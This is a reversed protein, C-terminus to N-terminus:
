DNPTDNTPTSGGTGPAAPTETVKVSAKPRPADEVKELVGADWLQEMVKPSLGVVESGHPFYHEENVVQEGGHTAVPNGDANVAEGHQINSLARFWAAM